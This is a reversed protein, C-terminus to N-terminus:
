LNGKSNKIDAFFTCWAKSNIALQWYDSRLQYANRSLYITKSPYLHPKREIVPRIKNFVFQFQDQSLRFFNRYGKEDEVTIEKVLQHFAGKEERRRIWQRTPERKKRKQKNNPEEDELLGLLVVAVARKQQQSAAM